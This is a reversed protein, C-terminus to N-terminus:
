EIRFSDFFRAVSGTGPKCRAGGALLVYFRDDSTGKVQYLRAILTGGGAPEIVWEKGAHGNLAIDSRQVVIGQLADRLRDEVTEGLDRLPDKKRAAVPRDWYSLSFEADDKWTVVFSRADAGGIGKPSGKLQKPEGPMQVQCRGGAPAFEQWASEPIEGPPALPGYGFFGAGVLGLAALAGALAVYLVSKVLTIWVSRSRAAVRPQTPAQAAPVPRAPATPGLMTKAATAALKTQKAPAAALKTQKVPAAALKTQKAQAAALKTQKAQAAALKTQKAQAAAVRTKKAAAAVLKTKAAPKKPLLRVPRACKPCKLSQGVPLKGTLKLATKCAPCDLCMVPRPAAPKPPQQPRAPAAAKPPQPKAVETTTAAQRKTPKGPVLFVNTCKGCKVPKGPPVTGPLRLVTRCKPCKVWTYKAAPAKAPPPTSAAKAPPAKAAGPM